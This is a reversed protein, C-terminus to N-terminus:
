DTRGELRYRVVQPVGLDNVVVAYAHNGRVVFAFGHPLEGPFEVRGLYRAEPDFVDFVANRQALPTSPRVWAFGRDDLDISIFAPKRDPVQSLDVKGGQQRFWALGPLSDLEAREVAAPTYPREGIRLTRGGPEGVELRYSDSVGSWLVPNRGLAWHLRPAFPVALGHTVSGRTVEFQAEKRHPLPLTDTRQFSVDYKLLVLRSQERLHQMGVDYLRGSADIVGPWPMMVHGSDRLYSRLFTGTTDFVSFRANGPDVVWLENRPGWVMGIPQRFEGPGGGERGFSRVHRGNGDFVRIEREEMDLVYVRGWADEEIAGPGGFQDPGGGDMSGIRLDEVPRWTAERSWTGEQPNSVRVVGDALTDTVIEGTTAGASGCATLILVAWLWRRGRTNLRNTPM